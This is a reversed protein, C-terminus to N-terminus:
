IPFAIQECIGLPPRARKGCQKELLEDIARYFLPLVQCGFFCGRVPQFQAFWYTRLITCEQTDQLSM